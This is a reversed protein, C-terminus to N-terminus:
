EKREAVMIGKACWLIECMHVHKAVDEIGRYEPLHLSIEMYINQPQQPGQGGSGSGGIYGRGGSGGSSSGGIGGSGGGIVSIPGISTSG